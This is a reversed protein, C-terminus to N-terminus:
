GVAPPVIMQREPAAITGEGQGEPVSEMAILVVTMVRPLVAMLVREQLRLQEPDGCNQLRFTRGGQRRRV